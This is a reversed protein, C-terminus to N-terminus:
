ADMELGIAPTERLKKYFEKTPSCFSAYVSTAFGIPLAIIMLGFIPIYLLVITLPLSLATLAVSIIKLFIACVRRFISVIGFTLILVPLIGVVIVNFYNNHILDYILLYVFFLISGIFVGLLYKIQWPM